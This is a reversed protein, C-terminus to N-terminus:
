LTAARVRGGFYNQIVNGNVTATISIWYTRPSTALGNIVCSTAAGNAVTCFGQLTGRTQASWAEARYSTARPVSSWTATIRGSGATGVTGGAGPASATLNIVQTNVQGSSATFTLTYAGTTAVSTVSLNTFTAVGANSINVVRTGGLVAGGSITATVTGTTAGSISLRPQVVFVGSSVPGTAPQTFLLPSGSPNSVTVNQTAVTLNGSSYTITNQGVTSLTLGSFTAVGNVATASGIQTGGVRAIVTSTNGAVTLGNAGAISIVPAPNLAVGSIATTGATTLRLQTPIAAILVNLPGRAAAPQTGVITNGGNVTLGVVDVFYNGATGVPVILTRSLGAAQGTLAPSEAVDISTVLTTRAATTWVRVRYASNTVGAPVTPTTFTVSIGGNLATAATMTPAALPLSAVPISIDAFQLTEINILTDIADVAGGGNRADTVTISGNANVVITYNARAGQFIAIDNEGPANPAVEIKRVISMQTIPDTTLNHERIYAAVAGMDRVFNFGTLVPAGQDSSIGWSAPIKIWVSLYANGDVIDRGNRGTIQDNGAGGLIIDGQTWACAGVGASTLLARLGDIVLCDNAGLGNTVALAGAAAPTNLATVPSGLLVDDFESGSLGEVETFQDALLCPNGGPCAPGALNDLDETSGVKQGNFMVTFWDFGNGGLVIEGGSHGKVVDSGELGDFTGGGPSALMVDNGPVTGVAVVGLQGLNDGSLLDGSGSVGELWDDGADGSLADNGTSGRIWDNGIGGLAVVPFDGGIIFDDGDNGNFSAAGAGGGIYDNGAGGILLDVVSSKEDEIIDNGNGGMVFDDGPGGRLWDNGDGGHLTDDGDGSRIIDNGLTGNWVLHKAGSYAYGSTSADFLLGPINAPDAPLNITLSPAVFADAPLPGVDTNRMAIDSWFNTEVQTVLNTGALRGLYYFRDSEQLNEMQTKFIYDFTSGLMTGLRTSKEALGGVWLDIGDVGTTAAPDTMFKICVNPNQPDTPVQNAFFCDVITQAIARKEGFTSTFDNPDLKLPVSSVTGDFVGYAAIFNVLSEPHRLNQSFELWNAYPALAASISTNGLKANETYFYSRAVNLPAIGADRGRTLNLTALDLPQGLLSNRLDGTVFEDIENGVQNTMGRLVSGAAEKATLTMDSGPAYMGTVSDVAPSNFAPPNLFASLLDISTDNGNVDVRAVDEALQSHGYRYVAHAFEATISPNLEENYGVFAGIAPSVKRVFEGFVLHQYEMETILRAAQFLREGNWELSNVIGTFDGSAANVKWANQFDRVATADILGDAPNVQAGNVIAKIEEILRNHENHFVTHVSTLAINENGRGDGNIFHKDLLYCDYKGAGVAGGMSPNGAACTKGAAPQAFYAIDLLFARGSSLASSALVVNAPNGETTAPTLTPTQNSSNVLMPFGNAGRLFKGYEDTLLLPVNYVDMDTLTIGLKNLAQLKIDAWTATNGSAAGGVVTAYSDLLKGTAFPKDGSSCKKNPDISTPLESLCRYERLFVQHSPHSTYTQNQDVWPTTANTGADPASMITRGASMEYTCGYNLYTTCTTYLPDGPLVPVKVHDTASKGVLDLGHDFFQGFIVFNGNYPAKFSDPAVAPISLSNAQMTVDRNADNCALDIAAKNALYSAKAAATADAKSNGAGMNKSIESAIYAASNCQSQDSIINSIFRPANDTVDGPLAYNFPTSVPTGNVVTKQTGSRYNAPVMRPFSSDSAGLASRNLPDTNTLYGWGTWTSFGMSLNNNRGDVQRLGGPLLSSALILSPTNAVINRTRALPTTNLNAPARLETVASGAGLVNTNPIVTGPNAATNRTAHSEAMRIQDLIFQLDSITVTFGAGLVGANSAPATAALSVLSTSIVLASSIIKKMRRKKSIQRMKLEENDIAQQPTYRPTVRNM